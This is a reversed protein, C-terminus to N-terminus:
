EHRTGAPPQADEGGNRIARPVTGPSEECPDCHSQGELIKTMGPQMPVAERVPGDAFKCEFHGMGPPLEQCDRYVRHDQGLLCFCSGAHAPIGLTLGLACALSIAYRM